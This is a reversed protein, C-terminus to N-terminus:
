KIMWNLVKLERFFKKFWVPFSAYGIYLLIGFLLWNAAEDLIFGAEPTSFLSTLMADILFHWTSLLVLAIAAIVVLRQRGHTIVLWEGLQPITFLLFVLRYDWNNGLLFTGIYIFAGTQFAILNRRSTTSFTLNDRMSKLLFSLIFAAGLIYPLNGLIIDPEKIFDRNNLYASFLKNYHTFFVDTGYSLRKGRMTTQWAAAMSNFSVIFYALFGLVVLLTTRWFTQWGKQLFIVLGFLPFVKLMAGILLLVGSLVTFREYFLLILTIIVFLIVDVNGREYLLM